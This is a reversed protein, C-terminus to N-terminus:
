LDAGPGIGLAPVDRGNRSPTIERTFYPVGKPPDICWETVTLDKDGLVMHKSNMFFDPVDDGNVDKDLAHDAVGKTETTPGPPCNLNDGPGPREGNRDPLPTETVVVDGAMAMPSGALLFGALFTSTKFM